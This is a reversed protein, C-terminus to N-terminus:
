GFGIDVNFYKKTLRRAVEPKVGRNTMSRYFGTAHGKRYTIKGVMGAERENQKAWEAALGAAREPSHGLEILREMSTRFPASVGYYQHGGSGDKERRFLDKKLKSTATRLRAAAANSEKKSLRQNDANRDINSANLADYKYQLDAAAKSQSLGFEQMAVDIQAQKLANEAAQGQAEMKLYPTQNRINRAYDLHQKQAANKMNTMLRMDAQGQGAMFKALGEHQARQIENNAAVYGGAQARSYDNMDGALRPVQTEYQAAIGSLREADSRLKDMAQNSFEQYQKTMGADQSIANAVEQDIFSLPKPGKQEKKKKKRAKNKKRKAALRDQAITSPTGAPPQRDAM